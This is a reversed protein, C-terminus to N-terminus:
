IKTSPTSLQAQFHGKMSLTNKERKTTRIMVKAKGRPSMTLAIAKKVKKQQIREVKTAEMAKKMPNTKVKTVTKVITAKKVKTLLSLEMNIKKM